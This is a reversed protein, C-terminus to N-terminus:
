IVAKEETQKQKRMETIQPQLIKKCSRIKRTFDTNVTKWSVDLGAKSILTSIDELPKWGANKDIVDMARVLQDEIYVANDYGVLEEGVENWLIGFTMFDPMNPEAAGILKKASEKYRDKIQQIHNTGKTVTRLMEEDEQIISILACTFAEGISYSGPVNYMKSKSFKM